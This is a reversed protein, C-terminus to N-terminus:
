SDSLSMYPYKAYSLFVSDEGRLDKGVFSHPHRSYHLQSQAESKRMDSRIGLTLPLPSVIRSGSTWPILHLARFFLMRTRFRSVKDFVVSHRSASICAVLHGRHPSTPLKMPALVNEAAGNYSAQRNERTSLRKSFLKKEHLGAGKSKESLGCRDLGQMLKFLGRGQFM